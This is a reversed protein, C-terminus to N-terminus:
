EANPQLAVTPVERRFSQYLSEAWELADPTDTELLVKVTGSDPDYGNIAVREDLIGVGYHPLADHLRVTLNGSRLAEGFREPYTSRIYNVVSPPAIIEAQMGDIIRRCLEDKCLELVAVDFGAFRFGASEGLMSIFRTLPRYPNDADAVTVAAEACMEVTFGSSGDPLLHWIDRLLQETEVHDILGRMGSAIYAGLQTAEYHGGDRVVWGRDEFERLTRGITSQSIGTMALLDARSQPRRALAALATVRHDSRALYEIDDLPSPARRANM